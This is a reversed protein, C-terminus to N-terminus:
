REIIHECPNVIDAVFGNELVGLPAFGDRGGGVFGKPEEDTHIPLKIM